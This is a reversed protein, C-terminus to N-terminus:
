RLSHSDDNGAVAQRLLKATDFCWFFWFFFLGIAEVFWIRKLILDFM